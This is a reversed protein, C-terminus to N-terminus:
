FGGEGGGRNSCKHKRFNAVYWKSISTGTKCNIIVGNGFWVAWGSSNSLLAYQAMWDLLGACERGPTLSHAVRARLPFSHPSVDSEKWDWADHYQSDIFGLVLRCVLAEKAARPHWAELIWNGSRLDGLARDAPGQCKGELEQGIGGGVVVWRWLLISPSVQRPRLVWLWM